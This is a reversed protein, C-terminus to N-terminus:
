PRAKPSTRKQRLEGLLQEMDSPLPSTVALTTGSEPHRFALRTAHLAQRSFAHPRASDRAGRPRYVKEGVVPHGHLAAQVRIQNRKGTELTVEVLTVASFREVVRYHAVADKGRAEIPPAQQQRLATSDWFLRDRWTGTSPQV